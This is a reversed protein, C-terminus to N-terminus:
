IVAGTGLTVRAVTVGAAHALQGSTSACASAVIRTGVGASFLGTATATALVCSETDFGCVTVESVGRRRLEPTLEGAASYGHKDVIRDAREAVFDLLRTGPDGPAMEHWDLQRRFSSGPRNSFRTSLVADWPGADLLRRIEPVAHTTEPTVFGHQADVIVLASRAATV